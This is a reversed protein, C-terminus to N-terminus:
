EANLNSKEHHYCISKRGRMIHKGLFDINKIM